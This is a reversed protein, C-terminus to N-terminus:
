YRTRFSALGYTSGAEKKKHRAEMSSSTADQADVARKTVIDADALAVAERQAFNTNPITLGSAGDKVIVAASLTLPYKQFEDRAVGLSVGM